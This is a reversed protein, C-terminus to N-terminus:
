GLDGPLQVFVEPKELGMKLLSVLRDSARGSKLVYRHGTPGIREGRTQNEDIAGDVRDIVATGPRRSYCDAILAEDRDTAVLDARQGPRRRADLIQASRCDDRPQDVGMVVQLRGTAHQALDLEEVGAGHGLNHGAHRHTYALRRRALPDHPATPVLTKEGFTAM